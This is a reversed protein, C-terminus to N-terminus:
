QQVQTVLMRMSALNVFSNGFSPYPEARSSQHFSCGPLTYIDELNGGIILILMDNTAEVIKTAYMNM